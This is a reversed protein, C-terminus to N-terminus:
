GEPAPWNEPMAGWGGPGLVVENARRSAIHEKAGPGVNMLLDIVSLGPQFPGWQQPYDAYDYTKYELGIGVDHFKAVEIYDKAAPGSLYSTAGVKRLLDLLRDTKRGQAGLESALRVPTRIDLLRMLWLCASHNLELLTRPEAALLEALEDRYLPYFPAKRYWADIQAMHASRWEVEYTIEVEFIRQDRAPHRVPVTLWHWGQATKIRSRNRWDRRTYQVDDFLLFLDVQRIFDMYGRWPLYNPQIIGVRM